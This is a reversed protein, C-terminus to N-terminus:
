DSIWRPAEGSNNESIGRTIYCMKQAPSTSEGEIRRRTWPTQTGDRISLSPTTCNPPGQGRCNNTDTRATSMNWKDEYHRM